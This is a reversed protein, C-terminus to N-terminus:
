VKGTKESRQCKNRKGQKYANTLSLQDWHFSGIYKENAKSSLLGKDM